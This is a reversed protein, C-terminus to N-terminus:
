MEKKFILINQHIMSPVYSYPYGFVHLSKSVDYWIINSKWVMNPISEIVNALESSLCHYRKGRYVDGIFVALYKNPKLKFTAKLLVERMLDLWEKKSQTENDCKFSNLKSITAKKSRTKEISDINWYPVDTLIFDVTEDTIKDLEFRSDGCFTLGKEIKELDCVENYIDIWRQTIDIGISSRGCLSAGLLTGGVGMFPDLVLQGKKTFIKIIDECLKPPKEGGHESRLKHQFNVPYSKTIVTKTSFKWEAGTLDNLENKQSKIGKSM